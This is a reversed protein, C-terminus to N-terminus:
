KSATLSDVIQVLLVDQVDSVEVFSYKQPVISAHLDAGRRSCQGDCGVFRGVPHLHSLVQPFANTVHAEKEDGISNDNATNKLYERSEDEKLRRRKCKMMNGCSKLRQKKIPGRDNM